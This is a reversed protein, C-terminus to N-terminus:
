IPQSTSTHPLLTLPIKLSLFLKQRGIYWELAEVFEEFQCTKSFDM